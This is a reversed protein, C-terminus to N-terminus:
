TSTREREWQENGKACAACKSWNDVGGAFGGTSWQAPAKWEGCGTCKRLPVRGRLELRHVFGRADTDYREPCRECVHAADHLPCTM